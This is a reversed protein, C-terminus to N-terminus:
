FIKSAIRAIFRRKWSRRYINHYFSYLWDIDKNELADLFQPDKIYPHGRLLLIDQYAPLSIVELLRNKALIGEDSIPSPACVNSLSVKLVNYLEIRLPELGASFDYDNIIKLRRSYFDNFNTLSGIASFSVEAKNTSGSSIGGWRWNYAPYDIFMMRNAVLLFELNFFLDESAVVKQPTFHSRELTSKKFLKGWYGVSSYINIGFFALLIEEKIKTKDYVSNYTVYCSKNLRKYRHFTRYCDCVVLDLDNHLAANVMKELALPELWDDGDIFTLYEGTANKIGTAKAYSVGQNTKNDIIIMRKNMEPLQEFKKLVKLDNAPSCDNVAILEWNQYTQNLVSKVLKPIYKESNYFNAIISVKPNM